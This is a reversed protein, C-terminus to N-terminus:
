NTTKMKKSEDNELELDSERKSGATTFKLWEQHLHNNNRKWHYTADRLSKQKKECFDESKTANYNDAIWDWKLEGFNSWCEKMSQLILDHDVMKWIDTRGRWGDKIKKEEHQVKEKEVVVNLLPPFSRCTDHLVLREGDDLLVKCTRWVVKETQSPYTYSQMVVAPRWVDCGNVDKCKVEISQGISFTEKVPQLFPDVNAYFEDVTFFMDGYGSVFVRFSNECPYIVTYVTSPDSKELLFAVKKTDLEM